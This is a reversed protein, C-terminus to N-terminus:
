TSPNSCEGIQQNRITSLRSEPLASLELGDFFIQGRNLRDMGGLLGLLTSKGSGSLETLAVWEGAAVQFSIGRLIHVQHEGLPLSRHVDIAQILTNDSM